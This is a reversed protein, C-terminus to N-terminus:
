QWRVRFFLVPNTLAENTFSRLQSDGPFSYIVKWDGEVLNTRSEVCYPQYRETTTSFHFQSGSLAANTLLPPSPVTLTNTRSLLIATAVADAARTRLATNTRVVKAHEVHVFTGGLARSYIGQVNHTAALGDFNTGAVGENVAVNLPDDEPLTDNYAYSKLWNWELQRDLAIINGSMVNSRNVGTSLVVLCDTPFEPHNAQNFGHIQWETNKGNVGSWAEHVAHFMTNTLNGPDATGTGNANRHAGAILLGLAGSKLFIEAALPPTRFDFQPHPAAVLASTAFNTNIFYTGWPRTPVSNTERSKLAPFTRQDNTHTFIILEYDLAAANREALSFDGELM